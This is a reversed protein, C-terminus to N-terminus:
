SILCDLTVMKMHFNLTNLVLFIQEYHVQLDDGSFFKCMSGGVEICSEGAMKKLGSKRMRNRVHTARDWMGVEAYKNAIMVLNGSRRPELALLKRKVKDGIGDHDNPDNIYCASLLTRWITADPKLPMNLIFNYAEKLRAARGLVDVMAGFHILMPKIGHVNKLDHFFKFAAEVLGAHSCACLVGLFTVYNPKIVSKKMKSFLDLAETGFGHQALGLVMASWTWVNRDFIRDFVSRALDVAGCKAYMDVLATGLQCNVVLGKGIVQIHIWKGFSLNGIEACASLMIVMTTEDCEYGLGRMRTFYMIGDGFRSNEVCSSIISNWSVVTRDVMEDFVQCAFSMKGCSGYFHILSNLLYVDCHLGNKVVDAHVQRGEQYSSLTACAKFLFPYTMHDPKTDSRRMALFVSICDGALNNKGTACERIVTNWCNPLSDTYRAIVSSTYDFSSASPHLALFHIFKETIHTDFHLGCVIIQAHIQFLNRLSSCSTLQSLCQLKKLQPFLNSKHNSIKPPFLQKAKWRVAM